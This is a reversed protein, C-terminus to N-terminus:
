QYELISVPNGEEDVECEFDIGMDIIYESIGEESTLYDYQKELDRYLKHCAKKRWEEALGELENKFITPNFTLAFGDCDGIQSMIFVDGDQHWFAFSVDTDCTNEHSYRSSIRRFVIDIEADYPNDFDPITKELEKAESFSIPLKSSEGIETKTLFKELSTVQGTFSAGDGQSWFGTFEVDDVEVGLESMDEKFGEIIPEHWDYDTTSDAYFSIADEQLKAPLDKYEFRKKEM